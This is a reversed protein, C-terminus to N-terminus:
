SDTKDSSSQSHSRESASKSGSRHSRGSRSSHSSRGSSRSSSSKSKKRLQDEQSRRGSPLLRELAENLRPAFFAGLSGFFLAGFILIFIGSNDSSGSGDGGLVYAALLFYVFLGSLGWFYRYTSTRYARRNTDSHIPKPNGLKVFKKWWVSITNNENM